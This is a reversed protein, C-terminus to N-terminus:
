LETHSSLRPGRKIKKKEKKKLKKIEAENLEMMMEKERQTEASYPNIFNNDKPLINVEQAMLNLLKSNAGEFIRSENCFGTGWTLAMQWERQRDYLEHVIDPMRLVLDGFLATNEFIKSVSHQMTENEPFPDGPLFKWETVNTKAENLVAFLQKLMIEVLKYKQEYSGFSTITKVANLQTGRHEQFLKKYKEEASIKGELKEDQIKSNEDPMPPSDSKIQVTLLSVFIFLLLLCCYCLKEM